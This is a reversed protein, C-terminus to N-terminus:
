LMLSRAIFLSYFLRDRFLLYGGHEEDAARPFWFSLTNFLGDRYRTEFANLENPPLHHDPMYTSSLFM